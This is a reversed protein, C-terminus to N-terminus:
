KKIVPLIVRSAAGQQHYISITENKLDDKTATYTNIFQQPNRDILPFWTSHIQIMIKHGPAFTHAVDYLRFNVPTVQNPVFAQPKDFGERYRGRFVEGRVMLQYGSMNYQPMKQAVERPYNFNEPYVDIVKVIFDADSGTMSTFLEVDIPGGLQVSDTLVDSCFTIVDPRAAAFRQDDTMYSTTRSRVPVGTFPVPASLDSYYSTKSNMEVPATTDVKGNAHIYYPTFNVNNVPWNNYFEWKNAGSYYISVTNPKEGKGELYYRFFPYEIEDLFYDSAKEGFYVNGLSSYGRRSWGGHYWPGFALYLETEPSQKKIAEYTGWAGYCDESDYTGGVVLMAPKLNYCSTRADHEQWFADFDPHERINNWMPVTPGILKDADAFTGLKLYDQYVDNKVILPTVGRGMREGEMTPLYNVTQLFTFAGNHHRDDGRFYDTVPAQPSVAKLAPHASSAAMTAYFGDLSIGSCGVNGNSWTHHILWEVTDYTDTAEDINVKDKLAKKGTRVKINKNLPRILEYDGESPARGRVDQEVIIYKAKGFNSQASLKGFPFSDPGSGTGYATRLMLIPHRETSDKPTYISTHLKVGDRMPVMVEEKTYNAKIDKLMQERGNPRNQAITTLGVLAIMFSFVLRKTNM